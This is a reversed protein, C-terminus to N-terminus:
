DDGDDDYRKNSFSYGSTTSLTDSNMRIGVYCREGNKKTLVFNKNLIEEEFKSQKMIFESNDLAWAKYNQYLARAGTTYNPVLQCQKNLFQAVIDMQDKYYEKEKELCDPLKLDNEELYLIHGKICWGLIQAKEARLKEPMNKDKEHKEFRRLFPITIIRRWIGYDRGRIIPKNNTSMWIKFKPIYSFENGYKFQANIIDSGTIAKIRAEALKEGEDTEGTEVFRAGVLKAISYVAQNNQNKQQMLVSADINAAYDGMMHAILETFTSKGNSGGGYLFFMVQEKCSGSLTYGLSLQIFRIIEETEKIAEPSDGRYFVSKLFNIWNTPERFSVKCNTNKSMMKSKDFPLIDGSNLDVIGSDTNLLYDNENFESSLVPIDAYSKLESLMAEKGAKNSVRTINKRFADLLKEQDKVEDKKGEMRLSEIKDEISVADQRMIEILKNAYKKIIEKEDRIWTKGTWYM